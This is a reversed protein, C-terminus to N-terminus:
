LVGLTEYATDRVFGLKEALHISVANESSASWHPYIDREICHVLLKAAIATALGKNRFDPHTEIGIHIGERCQMLSVAHSIIRSEIRVCFGIGREAFDALSSFGPLSSLGENKLQSALSIDIREIDCEFPIRKQLSWLHKLNLAKPSFTIGQMQKLHPGHVQFILERWADSIPIIWMDSLQQVLKQAVPHTVDGGLIAWGPHTLQAVHPDTKSDALAIGSYEELVSHIFIRQSLYDVFLPILVSRKDPDISVIDMPKGQYFYYVNNSRLKISHQYTTRLLLNM